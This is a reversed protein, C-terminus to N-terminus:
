RRGEGQIGLDLGLCGPVFSPTGSTISVQTYLCGANVYYGGTGWVFAKELLSPKKGGEATVSGGLELPADYGRRTQVGLGAGTCMPFSDGGGGSLSSSGEGMRSATGENPRSRGTSPLAESRDGLRGQLGQRM